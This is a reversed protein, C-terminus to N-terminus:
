HCEYSDSVANNCKPKHKNIILSIQVENRVCACNPSVHEKPISTNIVKTRPYLGWYYM